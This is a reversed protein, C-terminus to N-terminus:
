GMLGAALRKGDPSFALEGISPGLPGLRRILKGTASDFIHVYNATPFADWGGAAILSGDPSIAVAHVKGGNDPSIPVRLTRLLKGDPLSWLRVTKDSSGTVMLKGDASLDVRMVVGTHMAAEIRLMPGQVPVDDAAAAPALEVLLGLMALFVAVTFQM